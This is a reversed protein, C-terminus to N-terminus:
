PERCWSNLKQRRRKGKLSMLLGTGSLKERKEPDDVGTLADLFEKSADVLKFNLDYKGEFTRNVMEPENLRMLGTDVFVATLNKGVAKSTLIAAVSSDVGGSLGIITHGSGVQKKIAEVSEEIFKDMDM